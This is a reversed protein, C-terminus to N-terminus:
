REYLQANATFGTVQAASKGPFQEVKLQRDATMQVLLVGQVSGNPNFRVPGQYSINDWSRGTNVATWDYKRLEYKVMGTSVSVNAPNPRAGLIGFQLAQGQWDGISIMLGTPDFADPAFSLHGSWINHGEGPAMNSAYGGTGQKFWTGILRGDVDYDIKGGRPAATRPNKAFLQSKIPEVFYEYPDTTYIKWGEAKTYQEPKIFGKLKSATNWSYIDIGHTGTYGIVQGAKVPIAGHWDKAPTVDGSQKLINVDFSDMNLFHMFHNCTFSITIAHDTFEEHGTRGIATMEVIIGNAPARVPYQNPRANHGDLGFIYGHDIPTVHGGIMQGLPEVVGIQEIAIPSVTLPVTGKGKCNGLSPDFAAQPKATQHALSCGSATPTPCSNSAVPATSDKNHAHLIAFSGGLIFLLLLGVAVRYKITWAKLRSLKDGIRSKITQKPSAQSPENDMSKDYCVFFGILFSAL